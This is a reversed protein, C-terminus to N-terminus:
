PEGRSRNANGALELAESGLYASIVAQDRALLDPPGEAILQGSELVYLRDVLGVVMPVDHAVVMLTADLHDRIRRLVPTFAEVERQAIGGTPEDLLIVDAGM